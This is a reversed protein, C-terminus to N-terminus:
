FLCDSGLQMHNCAFKKATITSMYVYMAYILHAILTKNLRSEDGHTKDSSRCPTHDLTRRRM